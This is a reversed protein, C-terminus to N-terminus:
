IAYSLNNGDYKKVFNNNNIVYANIYLVTYWLKAIAAMKNKWLAESYCCFTTCARIKTEVEFCVHAM